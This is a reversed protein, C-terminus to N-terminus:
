LEGRVAWARAILPISGDAQIPLSSKLHKRLRERENESLAACQAGAPGQGRLFPSWYDDFDAFVTAADLACTDVSKLGAATFLDVLPDPSCIPFQKGEDNAAADPFLEAIGDWFYRMLQMEGAYDWVYAAVTGGPRVVRCMERLASAHDAVFNLVLGSVLVDAERAELPISLADGTRFDARHDTITERAVRIFGESPEVGIVVSPAALELLTTSLAGTGCGIDAWRLGNPMSLWEVFLRSAPRSWRGIYREYADGDAFWDPEDNQSM